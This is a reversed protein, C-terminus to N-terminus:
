LRGAGDASKQESILLLMKREQSFREAAGAACIKSKCFSRDCKEDDASNQVEKLM